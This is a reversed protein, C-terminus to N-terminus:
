LPTYIVYTDAFPLKCIKAIKEMVKESTLAGVENPDLITFTASIEGKKNFIFDPVSSNSVASLSWETVRIMRLFDLM